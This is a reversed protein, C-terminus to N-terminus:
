KSRARALLEDLEDREFLRGNAIVARIRRLNGIDMLPDADLLVFDAFQGKEVSGLQQPKGLFEAANATAARLAQAPTLGAQVMLALEDHLDFGPSVLPNGLDTGTLLGVGSRQAEMTLAGYCEFVRRWTSVDRKGPNFNAVISRAEKEWSQRLASPVYQWRPDSYGRPDIVEALGRYSVLTPTVWTGRARLEAFQRLRDSDSACRKRVITWRERELARKLGDSCPLPFGSFHEISKIGVRAADGPTMDDPIHGAFALGHARSESAIALFRARDLGAHVKVFDVGAAALGAVTERAEKATRVIRRDPALSGEGDLKPGAAVIRPGILNGAEIERRWRQIEAFDSGMDRAFTVGSAILLPLSAETAQSLHVHMDWLGPILFRGTGDIIRGGAAGRDTSEISEIRADRVVVTSRPQLSGTKVDVIAVNTITLTPSLSRKQQQAGGFDAAAITLLALIAAIPYRRRMRHASHSM